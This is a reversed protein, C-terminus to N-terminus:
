DEIVEVNARPIIVKEGNELEAELIRVKTESEVIHLEEPLATVKGILGFNPQRIVRITTGIELTSMKPTQAKLEEEKFEVPIIIEPRMVGARIQTKGHISSKHGEFKKLLNFTKQAMNIKGFGETVVITLGIDEHGTIAVGLDYGLLRKLDRDDIGGTIIGHVGIQKAKSITDFDVISGCVIVKGKCSEDIKSKDIVEDPSSVLIKIEGTTEGGVGFIGQIYASKNEIIVGEEEIVDVVIGDIFAKVQVPIRPERLLLQGTITSINEVEGEIPSKVTTKFMGFIGKTQAIIQGKKIKQGESITLYQKVLNPTVGLKNALNFPVVKGPLLTEAVYDEAKVKDGKKVLVKGKLPLIREKRLVINETVTLGPSYAQAM